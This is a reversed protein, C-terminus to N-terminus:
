TGTALKVEIYDIVLDDSDTSASLYLIMSDNGKQM